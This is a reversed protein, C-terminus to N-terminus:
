TATCNHPRKRVSLFKEVVFLRMCQERKTAWLVRLVVTTWRAWSDGCTAKASEKRVWCIRTGNSTVKPAPTYLTQLLFTLNRVLHGHFQNGDSLNQFFFFSCHFEICYQPFHSFYRLFRSIKSFDKPASYQYRVGYGSKGM